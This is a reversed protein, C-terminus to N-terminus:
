RRRSQGRSILAIGAVSLLTLSTPEPVELGYSFGYIKTLREDSDPVSSSSWSSMVLRYDHSALLETSFDMVAAMGNRSEDFVWPINGLVLGEDHCSWLLSDTTVDFLSVDNGGYAFQGATFFEMQLGTTVDNQPSFLLETCVSAMAYGRYIPHVEAEARTFISFLSADAQATVPHYTDASTYRDSLPSYSFNTRSEFPNGSLEGRQIFTSHSESLLNIQIAPAKQVFLGTAFCCAAIFQFARKM